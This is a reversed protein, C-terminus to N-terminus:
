WEQKALFERNRRRQEDASNQKVSEVTRGNIKGTAAYSKIKVIIENFKSYMFTPTFQQFYFEQELSIKIYTEFYPRLVQERFIEPSQVASLNGQDVCAKKLASIFNKLQGLEKPNWVFKDGDSNGTKAKSWITFYESFSELSPTFFPDGKNTLNEKEYDPYLEAFEADVGNVDKDERNLFDSYDKFIKTIM